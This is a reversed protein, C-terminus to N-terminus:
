LQVIFAYNINIMIIINYFITCFFVLTYYQVACYQPLKKKKDSTKIHEHSHEQKNNNM